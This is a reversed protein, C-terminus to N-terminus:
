VPAANLKDDNCPQCGAARTADSLRAGMLRRGRGPQITAKHATSSDALVQIGHSVVLTLPPPQAFAIPPVCPLRSSGCPNPAPWSMTNSDEANTTVPAITPRSKDGRAAETAVSVIENSMRGM